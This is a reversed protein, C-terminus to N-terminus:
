VSYSTFFFSFSCIVYFIFILVACWWSGPTCCASPWLSPRPYTGTFCFLVFYLLPSFVLECLSPSVRLSPRFAVAFPTPSPLLVVVRQLEIRLMDRWATPRKESAKKGRQKRGGGEWGTTRATDLSNKPGSDGRKIARQLSAEEEGKHWSTM